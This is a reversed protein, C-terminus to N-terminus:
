ESLIKDLNEKFVLNYSLKLSLGRKILKSLGITRKNKGVYKNINNIISDGGGSVAPDALIM